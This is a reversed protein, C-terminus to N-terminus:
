VTLGLADMDRIQPAVAAPLLWGLAATGPCDSFHPVPSAM